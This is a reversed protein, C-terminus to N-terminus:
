MMSVPRTATVTMRKGLFHAHPYVSLLEVDVRLVFTDAV